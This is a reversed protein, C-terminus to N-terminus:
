EGGEVVATDLRRIPKSGGEIPGLNMVKRWENPTMAGRDVMQMLNLKTSMSSYQLNNAEFIIKHGISREKRTFLKRSFENSLQIAVPELEIEYYANWEDETYKSQVISENTGFLNFIRSFARDQQAANPVYSEPKIQIADAKADIGAVGTGAKETNLFMESFEQTNKKIDEPRLTQSYKLLWRIIASNKIAKVIGQDTTNVVDMLSILADANSTGLIDSDYYDSKLHILDQYPFVVQKGSRLTFEIDIEGSERRRARAHSANVPYIEFPVGNLDRFIYAFANNNLKLNVAMKEQFMQGSMYPNPEELLAKVWPWPNIKIDDGKDVIHMANLKGIGKSFPRICARVIDSQYANGNWASFNSGQVSVLKVKGVEHMTPTKNFLNFLGM